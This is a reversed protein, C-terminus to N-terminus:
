GLFELIKGTVYEIESRKLFPHMPLSIIRRSIKEAAPFDGHTYGLDKYAKQLHIPTPYHVQAGIGRKRLHALVKNRARVQIAYIHYVHRAYPAEYPCVIGPKGKLLETYIRAIRRRM